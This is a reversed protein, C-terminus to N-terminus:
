SCGVSKSHKWYLHLPLHTFIYSGRAENYERSENYKTGSILMAIYYELYDAKRSLCSINHVIRVPDDIQGTQWM